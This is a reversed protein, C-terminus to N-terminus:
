KAAKSFPGGHFTGGRVSVGVGEGQTTHMAAAFYRPKQPWIELENEDGITCANDEKM